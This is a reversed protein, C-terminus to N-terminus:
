PHSEIDTLDNLLLKRDEANEVKEAADRALRLCRKAEERNGSLAAARALAEYAYGILFPGLQNKTSIELCTNAYRVALLSNGVVSMIRSLQWYSLSRNKPACDPRRSWHWASALGLRVLEDEEEPTRNKKDILDWAANFCDVAFYQHAAEVDFGPERDAM